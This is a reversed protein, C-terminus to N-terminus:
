KFSYRLLKFTDKAPFEELYWSYGVNEIYYEFGVVLTATDNGPVFKEVVIKHLSDPIEEIKMTPASVTVAGSGELVKLKEYGKGEKERCKSDFFNSAEYQTGFNKTQTQANAGVRGWKVFCSADSLEQINWYKNNNGTVDAYIYKAERNISSTSM